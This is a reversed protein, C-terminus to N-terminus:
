LSPLHWFCVNHSFMSKSTGIRIAPAANKSSTLVRNSGSSVPFPCNTNNQAINDTTSFPLYWILNREFHHHDELQIGQNSDFRFNTYYGIVDEAQAVIYPPDISVSVTGGGSYTISSYSNEGVLSYCGDESM